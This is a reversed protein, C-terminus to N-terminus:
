KKFKIIEDAKIKSEQEIFFKNAGPILLLWNKILDIIKKIKVKTKNLLINIEYATQEGKEKFKNKQDESMKSYINNLGKELINEIKKKIELQDDRFKSASVIGGSKGIKESIESDKEAGLEGIITEEYTKEKESISTPKKIIDESKEAEAEIGNHKEKFNNIPIKM